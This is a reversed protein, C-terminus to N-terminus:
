STRSLRSRAARSLLSQYTLKDVDVVDPPAKYLRLDITAANTAARASPAALRAAASVPLEPLLPAPALPLLVLVLLLLVFLLLLGTVRLGDVVCPAEVAVFPAFPVFEPLLVLEFVFRSWWFLVASLSTSILLPPTPPLPLLALEAFADAPAAVVPESEVLAVPEPEGVEVPATVDVVLGDEVPPEVVPLPLVVPAAPVPPAPPEAPPLPVGPLLVPPLAPLPPVEPPPVVPLV